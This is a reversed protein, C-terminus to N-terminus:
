LDNRRKGNNNKEMANDKGEQKQKEKVEAWKKNGCKKCSELMPFQFTQISGCLLCRYKKPKNYKFLILVM